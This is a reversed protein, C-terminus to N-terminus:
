VLDYDRELSEAPTPKKNEGAASNILEVIQQLLDSENDGSELVVFEEDDIALGVHVLSANNVVREFFRASVLNKKLNYESRGGIMNIIVLKGSYFNIYTYKVRFSSKLARFGAVSAIISVGLGILPLGSWYFALAFIIVILFLLFAAVMFQVFSDPKTLKLQKLHPYYNIFKTNIAEM